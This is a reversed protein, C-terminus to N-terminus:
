CARRNSSFTLGGSTSYRNSGVMSSMNINKSVWIKAEIRSWDILSDWSEFNADLINAISKALWFMSFLILLRLIEFNFM